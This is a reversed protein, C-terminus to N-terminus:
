SGFFAKIRAQQDKEAEERTERLMSTTPWQWIIRGNWDGKERLYDDDPEVLYKVEDRDAFIYITIQKVIVERVAMADAM